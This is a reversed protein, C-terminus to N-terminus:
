KNEHTQKNKSTYFESLTYLIQVWKKKYFCKNNAKSQTAVVTVSCCCYRCWFFFFFLSLIFFSIRFDNKFLSLIRMYTIECATKRYSKKKYHMHFPYKRASVFVCPQDGRVGIFAILTNARIKINWKYEKRNFAIYWRWKFHKTYIWYIDFHM